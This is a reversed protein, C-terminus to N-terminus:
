GMCLKGEQNTLMSFMSVPVLEGYVSFNASASPFKIIKEPIQDHVLTSSVILIHTKHYHLFILNFYDSNYYTRLSAHINTGFKIAIWGIAASVNLEFGFFTIRMVNSLPVTLPNGFDAPNIRWPFIRPMEDLLQSIETQILTPFEVLKVMWLAVGSVDSFIM